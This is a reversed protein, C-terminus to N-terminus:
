RTCSSEELRPPISPLGGGMRIRGATVRTHPGPRLSFEAAEVSLPRVDANDGEKTLAVITQQPLPRGEGTPQMGRRHKCVGPVQPAVPLPGGGMELTSVPVMPTGSGLVEGTDDLLPREHRRCDTTSHGGLPTWRSGLVCGM